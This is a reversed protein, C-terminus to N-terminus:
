HTNLFSELNNPSLIFDHDTRYMEYGLAKNINIMPLNASFCETRIETIGPLDTKVLELMKAKLWKALGKNRWESIIGTLRQDAIHSGNKNVVLLSIGIMHEAKDRLILHHPNSQSRRFNEQNLRLAEPSMHFQVSNDERVMDNVLLTAVRATEEMIEEPIFTQHDLTIGYIKPDVAKLWSSVLEKEVKHPDLRFWLGTNSSLGGLSRILDLMKPQASRWICKLHAEKRMKDLLCSIIMRDMEQTMEEEPMATYVMNNQSTPHGPNTIWYRMYGVMKGDRLFIFISFGNKQISFSLTERFENADDSVPDDFRVHMSKRLAYYERLQADSFTSPMIELYRYM